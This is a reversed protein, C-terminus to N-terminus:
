KPKGELRFQAHENALIRPAAMEFHFGALDPNKKVKDAFQYAMAATPAEGDVSIQKASQNFQTIQVDPTPLSQSLHLLVEIPYYHPDTAPSLAKWRAETQKIFATKPEDRAIGRDLMGIQIRLALICAGVLLMLAAYAGGAWLLRKKWQAHRVLEARRQRWSEPLLNLKTKAPPAEVGMFDPRSVFLGQLTDRLQHLNEDLLVVPFVTNIGQLEASLAMQPLDRQLQNADAGDLFGTFGIKGEESIACVLSEGEPYLLFARGAAAHTAARQAAYVTVQAPIIGRDLLPAALESLKQNHVSVASVVSGEETQEIVEFDTTVEEAPYPLAKEIQLRVMESFEGAEVTPLRLRQALVANAPLGLVINRTGNLLPVTEDLTAVGQVDWAAGNTGARM